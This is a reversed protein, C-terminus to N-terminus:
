VAPKSAHVFIGVTPTSLPLNDNLRDLARLLSYGAHIVRSQKARRHATKDASNRAAQPLVNSDLVLRGFGLIVHNFPLCWRTLAQIEIVQLGCGVLVSVIEDMSYLRLHNSWIGAWWHEGRLHTKLVIELVKNVPDWLFPYNSNPVTVMLHGGPKLVRFLESALLSDNQVHEFVETCVISDFSNSPYPMRCADGFSILVKVRDTIARARSIGWPNIDIGHLQAQGLDCMMALYYGDGCGCDLVRQSPGLDLRELITCLRRRLAMDGVNRNIEALRPNDFLPPLRKAKAAADYTTIVKSSQKPM